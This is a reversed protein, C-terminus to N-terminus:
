NTKLLVAELADLNERAESLAKEKKLAARYCGAASVKDGSLEYFVGLNNLASARSGNQELLAMAEGYRGELAYAFALNNRAVSFDSKLALSETFHREADRLQGASLKSFGLNNHFDSVAPDLDIAKEYSKWALDRLGSLDYALGLGNWSQAHRGDMTLARRFSDLAKKYDSLGLYCRGKLSETEPTSPVLARGAEELQTLAVAYLGQAALERALGLRNTGPKWEPQERRDLVGHRVLEVAYKEQVAPRSACGGSLVAPLLSVAVAVSLRKTFRHPSNRKRTM